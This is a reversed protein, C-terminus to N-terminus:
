SSFEPFRLVGKFSNRFLVNAVSPFYVAKQFALVLHLCFLKLDSCFLKDGLQFDWSKNSKNWRDQRRFHVKNNM